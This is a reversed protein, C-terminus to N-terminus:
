LIKSFVAYTCSDCWIKKQTRQLELKKNGENSKGNKLVVKSLHNWLESVSIGLIPVTKLMREQSFFQHPCSVLLMKYIGLDSLRKLIIESFVFDSLM